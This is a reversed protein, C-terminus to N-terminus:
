LGSLWADTSFAQQGGERPLVGRPKTPLYKKLRRSLCLSTHHRPSFRFLSIRQLYKNLHRISKTTLSLLTHLKVPRLQPPLHHRKRRYPRFIHASDFYDYDSIGRPPSNILVYMTEKARPPKTGASASSSVDFPHGPMILDGVTAWIKMQFLQRYSFVDFSLKIVSWSANSRM